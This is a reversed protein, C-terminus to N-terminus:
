AFAPVPSARSETMDPGPWGAAENRWEFPTASCRRCFEMSAPRSPQLSSTNGTFICCEKRPLFNRYHVNRYATKRRFGIIKALGNIKAKLSTKEQSIRKKSEYHVMNPSVSPCTMLCPTLVVSELLSRIGRGCAQPAADAGGLTLAPRPDLSVRCIVSRTEPM